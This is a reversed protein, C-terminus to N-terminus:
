GPGHAVVLGTLQAPRLGVRQFASVTEGLLRSSHERGAQWTTESVVQEGDYLALSATATSTDLALLLPRPPASLM